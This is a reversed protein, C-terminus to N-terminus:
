LYMLVNTRSKSCLWPKQLQFNRFLFTRPLTGALAFLKRHTRYIDLIHSELILHLFNLRNMKIFSVSDCGLISTHCKILLNMTPKLRKMCNSSFCYFPLITGAQQQGTLTSIFITKRSVRETPFLFSSGALFCTSVWSARRKPSDIPTRTNSVLALSFM